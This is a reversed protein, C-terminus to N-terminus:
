TKKPELKMMKKVGEKVYTCVIVIVNNASFINWSFQPIETAKEVRLKLIYILSKLPM